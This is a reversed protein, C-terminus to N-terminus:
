DLILRSGFFGVALLVTGFVLTQMVSAGIAVGQVEPLWSVPAEVLGQPVVALLKSAAVVLESLPKIAIAGGVLMAVPLALRRVWLRRRIRTVVRRSFGDDAIPEAAFMSELLKDEADKLKEVMNIIKSTL